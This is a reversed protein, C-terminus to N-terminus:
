AYGGGCVAGDVDKWWTERTVGWGLVAPVGFGHLKYVLKWGKGWVSQFNGDIGCYLNDTPQEAPRSLTSYIGPLCLQLMLPAPRKTGM